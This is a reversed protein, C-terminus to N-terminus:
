PQVKLCPSWTFVQTASPLMVLASGDLHVVGAVAAGDSFRTFTM